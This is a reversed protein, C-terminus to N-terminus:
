GGIGVVLAHSPRKVLSGFFTGDGYGFVGGDSAVLWYGRGDPTAAMGVVPRNLHKGGMSGYFGADGFAFVAGDSGVLWYGRGDPTAAIGVVPRNLHKGAMSGYFGADGARLVEGDGLAVWYGRADPTAAMGVAPSRARSSASSGSPRSAASPVSRLPYSRLAGFSSVSGDAEVLRYGPPPVPLAVVQPSPAGEGASSVATVEFYYYTGNLLGTVKYRTTRVTAVRTGEAGPATAVYVNYARVRPGGNPKPASWSLTVETDGPSAVLGTPPSPPANVPVTTPPITGTAGIEPTVSVQASPPGEGAPNVASVEFYYTEGNTLGTVSYTTAPISVVKTGQVGPSTSEYVNYSTVPAGGDSPPASWSLVAEANGPAGSLNAPAAPPGAPTASAENSPAGEGASNVATVEFYYKTGNSLGSVTYSTGTVLAAGNVPTAAEHAPSTGVYVNYGTVPGTGTGAPAVWSLTVSGNGSTAQLGTPTVRGLDPLPASAGSLSPDHHFMPWSGAGVAEAGDSGPIEYHLIIGENNGNYGAITIGVTGNPDDTVLPSNQFGYQGGLVAVRAGTRGDLVEVGHTTPVLVDQYGAGSLDATVVSGIVRGVVATHWIPAGTAGDLAWASGTTGNDTGEVVELTGNGELDALAPSSSTVGDLTDSWVPVLRTTFAKLTDTDSAGPWYSGTGVVIGPQGGALFAGVAPSSDVEQNTDYDYILQGNANLIRVHGGKSYSQGNANGPTSAGGVVLEQQGTGYLDASAATSFVSDASFFPWGALVAGDTADLAYSLQDLSGAFVDPGSQLDSVDLSAQVGYAPHTDTPLDDVTTRWLLTGNAAYAAYGGTDPRLADGEGVFVTDLGNGGIAAVSPTSDIPAGGDFVPWGAVPSGDALHYAYLYGTRDGVVVAPGNGDLTAVMPSSEAIPEGRDQTFPGERWRLVFSSGSLTAQAAAPRVAATAAVAALAGLSTGALLTLGTLAAARRSGSCAGLLRTPIALVASHATSTRTVNM